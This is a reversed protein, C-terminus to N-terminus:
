ALSSLVLCLVLSKLIFCDKSGNERSNLLIMGSRRDDNVSISDSHTPTKMAKVTTKEKM